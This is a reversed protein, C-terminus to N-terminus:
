RGSKVEKYGRTAVHLGMYGGTVGQIRKDGVKVGQLCRTGM